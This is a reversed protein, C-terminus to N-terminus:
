MFHPSQFLTPIDSGVAPENLDRKGQGPISGPGRRHSRRIRAVLGDPVHRRHHGIQQDDSHFVLCKCLLINLM